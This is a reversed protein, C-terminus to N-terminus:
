CDVCGTVPRGGFLASPALRLRPARASTIRLGAAPGAQESFRHAHAVQRRLQEENIRIQDQALPSYM